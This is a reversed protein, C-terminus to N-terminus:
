QFPPHYDHASFPVLGGSSFVSIKAGNPAGFLASKGDGTATCCLICEGDLIRAVLNLQWDRLGDKWQPVKERVIKQITEHGETDKWRPSPTM